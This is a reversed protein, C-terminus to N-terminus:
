CFDNPTNKNGLMQAIAEVRGWIMPDGGSLSQTSYECDVRLASGFSNQIQSIGGQGGNQIYTHNDLATIRTNTQNIALTEQQVRQTADDLDDQANQVQQRAVALDHNLNGADTNAATYDVQLQNRAVLFQQLAQQLNNQAADIRAQAQQRAALPVGGRMQNNYGILSRQLGAITLRLNAILTERTRCLQLNMVSQRHLARANTATIVDQQAQTLLLQHNTLIQVEAARDKRNTQYCVNLATLWNNIKTHSNRSNVSLQSGVPYGM